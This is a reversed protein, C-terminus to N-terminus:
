ARTIRSQRASAVSAMAMGGGRSGIADIEDIFIVAATTSGPLSRPRASCRRSRCSRRRGHLRQHFRQGTRLHLSRGGPGCGGQGDPDQRNGSPGEFLLGHPPYGGIKKFERFGRFLKVVEQVSEVVPKQGRVDDFSTDYEKPYIVYKRGRSLFWM